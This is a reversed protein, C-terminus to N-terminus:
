VHQLWSAGHVLDDGQMFLCAQQDYVLSAWARPALKLDLAWDAEANNAVLVHVITCYLVTAHAVVSYKQLAVNQQCLIHMGEHWM